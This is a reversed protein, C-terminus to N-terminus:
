NLWLRPLAGRRVVNLVAVLDHRLTVGDAACLRIALLGKWASAAVEGAFRLARVSMLLWPDDPVILVTAIAAGKNAVAAAALTAAIDDEFRTAEAHLIRGERYVRWRDILRGHRVTERMGSRGFIIAECAILRADRDLDIRITRALRAGDFLITEQPLWALAAGADVKLGISIVADSDLARYIKEAAASTVLLRAQPAVSVDLGFRDGGAVGGATNVIVAELEGSPQGPCRVRLPGEERVRSRRTVGGDAKVTLAIRGVARNAAFVANASHAAARM